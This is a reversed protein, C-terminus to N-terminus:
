SCDREMDWKSQLYESVGSGAADVLSFVRNAVQSFNRINIRENVPLSARGSTDVPYRFVTSVPDRYDFQHLIEGVSDLEDRPGEPWVEEIIARCQQWVPVLRHQKPIGSDRDLLLSGKYLLHKLAIELAQRYLFVIPYILYDQNSQTDAVHQVLLDAARKYGEAYGHWEECSWGVCANHWWDDGDVFLLDGKRPWPIDPSM